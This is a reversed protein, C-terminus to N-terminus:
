TAVGTGEGRFGLLLVPYNPGLEEIVRLFKEYEPMTTYGPNIDNRSMALVLIGIALTNCNAGIQFKILDKEVNPRFEIEVFARSGDYERGFALDAKENLRPSYRTNASRLGKRQTIMAKLYAELADALYKQFGGSQHDDFSQQFMELTAKINEITLDFSGLAQEVQRPSPWCHHEVTTVKFQM